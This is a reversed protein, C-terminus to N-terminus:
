LEVRRSKRSAFDDIVADYSLQQSVVHNISIIALGNLREQVMTSRLFTKILKLKSFSREASAVTVPLSACIRLAVWMNPKLETLRKEYMFKLLEMSTMQKATPLSPFDEMEAALKMGDIDNHGDHTLVTSLNLCHEQLEEHSMKHFNTLVGFTDNVKQMSQFREDLSTLTADMLVNFFEVEMKKLANDIPEDPSEYSFTRTKTRVRKLKLVAEVNMNKCMETATTQADSFGTTKYSVLSNRTKALKDVAVDLLMTVSQM